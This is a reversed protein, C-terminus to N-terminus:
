RGESRAEATGTPKAVADAAIDTRHQEGEWRIRGVADYALARAAALDSGVATVGLVRGGATVVRGAADHETGAHFVIVGALREAEDLGEIVAGKAYTGPYGAATMVVCVAAEDRWRVDISALEGRACADLLVLWDGDLRPLLVQTEPDGFRANYELVKPGEETLMVGVFLVGSFPRGESALGRLTPVVVTERLKRRTLEDLWASPSYTGMGGTNPGRDGDGVRKYDQCPALEIQTVGDTLVFFSTERGRLMEEVVIRRGADGFARGSLMDRAADVAAEPDHAMVVGKGAALGDAKVVLPFAARESLLWRTAEGADDFVQFAATPIGHRAMFEKSFAKSGEVRAAAASPGFVAIGAERLRDALGACLAAEPGVVVLDYRAEIAHATLAAVDDAAIPIRRAHRAIGANGPACALDTLRPSQRLAWALAAERGGGGVILVRM